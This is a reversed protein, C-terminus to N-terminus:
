PLHEEGSDLPLANVADCLAKLCILGVVQSPLVLLFGVVPIRVLVVSVISLIILTLFLGSNLPTAKFKYRDIYNNYDTTYGVLMHFVWYLNFFPIFSFGVAKGPTTRAHGDQISAWAFYLLRAGFIVCLIHWVFAVFTLFLVVGILGGGPDDQTTLSIGLLGVIVNLIIAGVPFTLYFNFNVRRHRAFSEDLPPSEMDTQTDRDNDSNGQVGLVENIDKEM